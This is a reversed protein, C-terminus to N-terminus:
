SRLAIIMDLKLSFSLCYCSSKYSRSSIDPDCIDLRIVRECRETMGSAHVHGLEFISPRISPPISPPHLPPHIGPQVESDALSTDTALALPNIRPYIVGAQVSLPECLRSSQCFKSPAAWARQRWPDVFLYPDISLILPLTM